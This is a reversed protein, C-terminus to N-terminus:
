SITQAVSLAYNGTLQLADGNNILSLCGTSGSVVFSSARANWAWNSVTLPPAGANTVTQSGSATFRCGISGNFQLVVSGFTTVASSPGSAISVSWPLVPTVTWVGLSAQRCINFAAGTVSGGGVADLSVGLTSSSCTLTIGNVSWSVAGASAGLPGAPAVTTAQAAGSAVIGCLIALLGIMLCRTKRAM